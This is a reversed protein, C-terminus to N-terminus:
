YVTSVRNLPEKTSVELHPASTPLSTSMAATTQGAERSKGKLMPADRPEPGLSPLSTSVLVPSSLGRLPIRLFEVGPRNSKPRNPAGKRWFSPLSSSVCSQGRNVGLTPLSTSMSGQRHFTQYVTSMHRGVAAPLDVLHESGMRTLIWPFM